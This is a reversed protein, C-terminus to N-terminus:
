SLYNVYVLYCAYFTTIVIVTCVLKELKSLEKKHKFAFLYLIIGVFYLICILLIYSIGAAYLLWLSYIIAVLPIFLSRKEEECVKYFYLSSFLYPILYGVTSIELLINYGTSTLYSLILFGQVVITSIFLSSVPINKKDLKTFVEPFSNEKAAIYPMEVAYQTWAMYSGLVSIIMGINICTGGWSTISNFVGVTSPNKLKSLEEHNLIGASLLSVCIYIFFAIVVAIITAKSVDKASRSKSSMVSAGELGIFAWMTGLMISKVQSYLSPTTLVDKATNLEEKPGNFESMFIDIDFYYLTFIIFLLLPIMKAITVVINMIGTEKVGTKIFFLVLWIVISKGILSALNNGDGFIPMFMGMGSFALSLLTVNSFLTAGWYGWANLFGTFDGFGEKAYSFPGSHLHPKSISLKSYVLALSLVGVGTIGWGIISAFPYAGSNITQPLGFVGSGVMSNIIIATLSFFGMAGFLRSNSM